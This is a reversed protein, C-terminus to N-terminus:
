REGSIYSINLYGKLTSWRTLSPWTEMEHTSSYFAMKGVNKSKVTKGAPKMEMFDILIKTRSQICYMYGGHVAYSPLLCCNPDLSHRLLCLFKAETHGGGVDIQMFHFKDRATIGSSAVLLRLCISWGWTPLTSLALKGRIISHLIGGEGLCM